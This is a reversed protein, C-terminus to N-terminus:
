AGSLGHAPQSSVAAESSDSPLQEMSAVADPTFRFHSGPRLGPAVVVEVEILGDRVECVRYM